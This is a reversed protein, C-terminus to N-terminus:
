GPMTIRSASPSRTRSDMTNPAERQAQALGGGLTLALGTALVLTRIQMM